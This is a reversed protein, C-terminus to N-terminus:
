SRSPVRMETIITNISKCKQCEIDPFNSTNGNLSIKMVGTTVGNPNCDQCNYSVDYNRIEEKLGPKLREM